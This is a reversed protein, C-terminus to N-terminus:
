PTGPPYCLKLVPDDTTTLSNSRPGNSPKAADYKAKAWPTQAPEEATYTSGLFRRQAPTARLNWVGSLDHVPAPASAKAGADDKAMQARLGSSFAFVAIGALALYKFTNGM